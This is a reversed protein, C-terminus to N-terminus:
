FPLNDPNDNAGPLENIDSMAGSKQWEGQKDKPSDTSQDKKGGLEIERAVIETFYKKVGEKDTYDRYTIEGIIGVESGKKVYQEVIEAVKDWVVINHWQTVKEKSHNSTAISFKAVTKGSELKKVEPDKGVFGVIIAKNINM